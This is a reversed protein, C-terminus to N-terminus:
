LARLREGCPSRPNFDTTCAYAAGSCPDSGAHPAHISIGAPSVHVMVLHTAGRMPLTSQFPGTIHKSSTCSTAGRMPLTSQFIKSSAIISRFSTAGRMPLTSQFRVAPGAPAAAPTAGRMPLTSQFLSDSVETVAEYLREGCPSRPNFDCLVRCSSACLLTAGRMPLTSQFIRSALNTAGFVVDSGAHPAHISIKSVPDAGGQM